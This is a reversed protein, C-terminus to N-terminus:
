SGRELKKGSKGDIDVEPMRLNKKRSHPESVKQLRTSVADKQYGIM